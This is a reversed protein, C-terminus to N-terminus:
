ILVEGPAALSPFLSGWAAQWAMSPFFDCLLPLLWYTPKSRPPQRAERGASAQAAWLLPPPFQQLCFGWPLSSRFHSVAMSAIGQCPAPSPQLLWCSSRSHLVM